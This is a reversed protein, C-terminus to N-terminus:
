HLFYQQKEDKVNNAIMYQEMREAYSPFDDSNADFIEINGIVPSAMDEDGTKTDKVSAQTFSSSM